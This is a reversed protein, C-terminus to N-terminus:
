PGIAAKLCRRLEMRARHLRSKVTGVPLDLIEAIQAYDLGEIDRLVVVTRPEDDLEALGQVLRQQTERASLKAPPDQDDASIRGMLTAAQEGICQGDRNHLSLHVARAQRRRHSLALNVAIRYLWTYFRSRAQYSAIAQLAHLFTEQALDEADERRGAIRWCTNLVRDQYRSVLRGFAAMDGSRAQQALAEDELSLPPVVASASPLTSEKMM